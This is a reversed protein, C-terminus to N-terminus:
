ECNILRKAAIRSSSANAISLWLRRKGIFDVSRKGTYLDNGLRQFGDLRAM